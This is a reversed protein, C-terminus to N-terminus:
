RDRIGHRLLEEGKPPVSRDYSGIADNFSDTAKILGARISDFHKVFIAVRSYKSRLHPM